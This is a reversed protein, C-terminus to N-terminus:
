MMQLHKIGNLRNDKKNQQNKKATHFSKLNILDCKNVKAKKGMVRPSSDLFINSHNIDFLIIGISEELLQITNHRVNLNKILKSNVKQITQLFTRMENKQIYLDLKGLVM